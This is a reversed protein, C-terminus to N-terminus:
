LTFALGIEYVYAILKAKYFLNQIINKSKRIQQICDGIIDKDLYQM